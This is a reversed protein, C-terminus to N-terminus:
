LYKCRSMRAVWELSICVQRQIQLNPNFMLFQAVTFQQYFQQINFINESESTLLPEDTDLIECEM